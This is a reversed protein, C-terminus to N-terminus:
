FVSSISSSEDEQEVSSSPPLQMSSTILHKITEMSPDLKKEAFFSDHDDVAKPIHSPSLPTKARPISPSSNHVSMYLPASRLPGPSHQPPSSSSLSSNSMFRKSTTMPSTPSLPEEGFFRARHESRSSVSPLEDDVLFVSNTFPRQSSSIVPSPSFSATRDSSSSSLPATPTSFGGSSNLM